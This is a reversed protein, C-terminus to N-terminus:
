VYKLIHEPKIESISEIPPSTELGLLKYNDNACIDRFCTRLMEEVSVYSLECCLLVAPVRSCLAIYKSYSDPSILLDMKQMLSISEWLQHGALNHVRCHSTDLYEDLYGKRDPADFLYIDTYKHNQLIEEIIRQWNEILYKKRGDNSDTQIAIRRYTPLPFTFNNKFKLPLYNELSLNGARKRFFDQVTACDLSQFEKNTIYSFGEIHNILEHQIINEWGCDNTGEGGYTVIINCSHHKYLSLLPFNCTITKICDGLGGELHIKLYKPLDM